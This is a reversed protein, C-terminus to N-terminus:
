YGYFEDTRVDAEPVGTAALAKRLSAVMAPPGALYHMSGRAEPVERALFDPDAMGGWTGGVPVAETMTSVLRFRSLRQAMAELEGLFPADAPTRNSYLLVRPRRSDRREEERLMSMFPTIGIGGALLVVPRSPEEPLTFKGMPGRIKLAAGPALSGLVRKFATDRMRTAIQLTAESPASALSFTRSNGKADTEPPEVLTLNVAQGPEFSFGDPRALRFAATARAIGERGLLATAFLPM